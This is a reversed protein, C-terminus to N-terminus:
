NYLKKFYLDVDQIWKNVSYTTHNLCSRGCKWVVMEKPTDIQQGILEEIREGVVDVAQEPSNFCSYGSLTQNYTGRYGWYNYCERGNKQPAYKGWNSEKKAIAVLFAAVEKDWQAIYPAMDKIPYDSVLRNVKREMPSPYKPMVINPIEKKIKEGIGFTLAAFIFCFFVLGFFLFDEPKFKHIEQLVKKHQRKNM